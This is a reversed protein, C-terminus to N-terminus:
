KAYLKKRRWLFFAAFVSILALPFVINLSKWFFADNKARRTDLLRLKVFRTRADIFSGEALLYEVANMLFDKNSFTINMDRSFGLPYLKQQQMNVENRAVDGDSVVLMKTPQSTAQFPTKLQELTQLMEPPVRNEYLSPFVGELLLAVTQQGQNFKSQDPKERLIEFSVTTPAFQLRSYVSSKLIPTKIVNTKTRITDISTPFQMLVRDLNKVMPNQSSPSIIPHYFWPLRDYQPQGGQQGVRLTISACELDVVMAPQIRAGYRYLQDELNLENETPTITGSKMMSDLGSNLRDILWIIKGGNMAYQDLKFKDKESFPRTPKAIIVVDAQKSGFTSDKVPLAVISDLNVRGVDYFHRLESEFSATQMPELEGHGKIFVINPKDNKILRHIATAFKYELLEVSHNLAEEDSKGIGEELLSVYQKRDGLNLIAVPYIYKENTEEGDKVALRTPYINQEALNKQKEKIQEPSGVLPNQFNFEILANIGHFDRLLNRTSTQLRKFGAPFEGELLVQVTIPEKLEKVVKRTASTLTFRKEETLDAQGNFYNALVNIALLLFSVILIQIWSQIKRNKM